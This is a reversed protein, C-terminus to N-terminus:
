IFKVFSNLVPHSNHIEYNVNTRYTKQEGKNMDLLYLKM